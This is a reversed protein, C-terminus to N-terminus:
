NPQAGIDDGTADVVQLQPDLEAEEIPVLVEVMSAIESDPLEGYLQLVALAVAVRLDHFPEGQRWLVLAARAMAGQWRRTTRYRNRDLRLLGDAALRARV